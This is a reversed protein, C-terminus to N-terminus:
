VEWKADVTRCIQNCYMLIDINSLNMYYGNQLADITYNYTETFAPTTFDLGTTIHLNQVLIGLEEYSNPHFINCNNELLKKIKDPCYHMKSCMQILYGNNDFVSFDCMFQWQFFFHSFIRDPRFHLNYEALAKKMESPLCNYTGELFSLHAEQIDIPFTQMNAKNILLFGCILCYKEIIPIAKRDFFVVGVIVDDNYNKREIERFRATSMDYVLLEM